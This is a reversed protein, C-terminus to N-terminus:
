ASAIWRRLEGLSPRKGYMLLGVRYIRAALWIAAACGLVLIGISAAVEWPSVDVTAMRLPMIIPSSFPLLSMTRALKSGPNQLVPSIFVATLVLLLVVPQAAQRADQESGVTAGVAAYLAGYFLFGLVFFLLVAIIWSWPIAIAADLFAGSSLGGSAAAAAKTAGPFLYGRAAVMLVSGLVWIVQQTLGVATVGIVKGALLIDPSVSSIVIEAVRSMKEEIVGSLMSQGYLVISMYLFFAVIGALLSKALSATSRGADNITETRLEPAPIAIVSDVASTAVGRRQLELAILGARVGDGIRTLESQSDARRGAYYVSDGHLTTSDLVVFGTALRETVDRTANTRAAALAGPAVTQVDAITTGQREAGDAAGISQAVYRGLGTGTADIIEVRNATQREDHRTVLVPLVVVLGLLLPGLVTGIIFWKTRVRELYERRIVAWLKHLSENKRDAM